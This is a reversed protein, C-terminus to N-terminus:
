SHSGGQGFLLRAPGRRLRLGDGRDGVLRGFVGDRRDGDDVLGGGANVFGGGNVFGGRDRLHLESHCGLDVGLRLLRCCMRGRFPAGVGLCTGNETRVLGGMRGGGAILILLGRRLARESGLRRRHLLQQGLLVRVDLAELM